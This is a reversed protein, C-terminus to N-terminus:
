CLLNWWMRKLLLKGSTGKGQQSFKQNWMPNATVLDFPKLSTDANTFAPRHMTDGLRIDGEEMGHIFTNMKAM